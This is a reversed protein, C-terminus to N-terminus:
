NWHPPRIGDGQYLSRKQQAHMYMCICAHWCFQFPVSGQLGAFMHFTGGTHKWINGKDDAHKSTACTEWVDAIQNTYWVNQSLICVRTRTPSLYRVNLIILFDFAAHPHSTHPLPRLLAAARNTCKRLAWQVGTCSNHFMSLNPQPPQCINLTIYSHPANYIGLMAYSICNYIHISNTDWLYNLPCLKSGQVCSVSWM